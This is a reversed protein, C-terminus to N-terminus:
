WLNVTPLIARPPTQPYVAFSRCTDRKSFVPGCHYRDYLFASVRRLEVQLENTADIVAELGAVDADTPERPEIAHIDLEDYLVALRDIRAYVGELASTFARDDLGGFIPALDWRPPTETTTM